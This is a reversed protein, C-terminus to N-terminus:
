YGLMRVDGSAYSTGIIFTGATTPLSGCPVLDVDMVRGRQHHIATIRHPVASLGWATCTLNVFEGVYRDPDYGCGSLTRTPLVAGLTDIYLKCLRQAHSRSQVYVGTDEGVEREPAGSGLTEIGEEVAVLPRGRVQIRSIIMTENGPNSVSVILRAASQSVISAAFTLIKGETTTATVSEAPLAGASLVYDYVPQQMALTLTISATGAVARPTTDEYVIQVPALRRATFRCRVAAVLEGTRATESIDAYTGDGFTYSGSGGLSLAGAVKVTGDLTQFIVLGCARALRGLEDWANEGAAWSWQPTIPSFDCSYYFAANPYTGSQELPRGGCQWLIYNALGGIYSGSTPDEVSSATTQTSAPRRYFLPSFVATKSILEDFGGITYEISRRGDRQRETIVGAGRTLKNSTDFGYRVRIPVREWSLSAALPDLRISGRTSVAAGFSVGNESEASENDISVDLVYDPSIATWVGAVLREVAYTPKTVVAEIQPRTPDSM